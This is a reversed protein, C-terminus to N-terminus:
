RCIYKNEFYAHYKVTAHLQEKAGPIGSLAEHLLRGETFYLEDRLPLYERLLFLAYQKM